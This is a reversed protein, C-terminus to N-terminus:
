AGVLCQKKPYRPAQEPYAKFFDSAAQKLALAADLYSCEYSLVALNYEDISFQFRLIRDLNRYKRSQRELCAYRELGRLTDSRSLRCKETFEEETDSQVVSCVLRAQERFDDVDDRSYWLSQIEEDSLQSIPSDISTFSCPGFTVRRGNSPQQDFTESPDRAEEHFTVKNVNRGCRVVTDDRQWNYEHSYHLNIHDAKPAM